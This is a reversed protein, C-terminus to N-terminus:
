TQDTPLCCTQHSTLLRTDCCSLTRASAHHAPFCFTAQLKVSLNISCSSNSCCPMVTIHVMWKWRESCSFWMLAGCGLSVSQFRCAPVHKDSVILSTLSSFCCRISVHDAVLLAENISRNILPSITKIRTELGLAFV